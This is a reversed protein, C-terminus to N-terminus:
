SISRPASIVVNVIREVVEHWSVQISSSTNLHLNTITMSGTTLKGSMLVAVQLPRAPLAKHFNLALTRLHCIIGASGAVSAPSTVRAADLAFGGAVGYFPGM